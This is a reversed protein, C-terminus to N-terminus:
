YKPLKVDDEEPLIIIYPAIRDLYEKTMGPVKLLDNLTDFRGEEMGYQVIAKALPETMGPLRYLQSISTRNINQKEGEKVQGAAFSAAVGLVGSLFLAMLFIATVKRM